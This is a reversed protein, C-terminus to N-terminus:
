RRRPREAGGGAGEGGGAGGRPEEPRQETVDVWEGTQPDYTMSRAFGGRGSMLQEFLDGFPFAGFPSAPAGGGGGADRDRRMAEELARRERERQEAEIRRRRARGIGGTIAMLILFAGLLILLTAM